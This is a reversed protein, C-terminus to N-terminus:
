AISILEGSFYSHGRYVVIESAGRGGFAIQYGSSPIYIDITVGHGQSAPITWITEDGSAGTGMLKYPAIDDWTGSSSSRYWLSYQNQAYQNFITLSFRYHGGIPVTFAGTSTSYHSGVNYFTSGLVVPGPTATAINTSSFGHHRADGLTSYASFRPQNHYKIYGENEVTLYDDFGANTDTVDDNAGSLAIKAQGYGSSGACFLRTVGGAYQGMGYRDASGYRKSIMDGPNNNVCNIVPGNAYIEIGTNSGPLIKMRQVSQTYFSLGLSATSVDAIYPANGNISGIVVGADNTGPTTTTARFSAIANNPTGSLNDNGIVSLRAEPAGEGQHGVGLSLNQTDIVVNASTGRFILKNTSQFDLVGNTAM